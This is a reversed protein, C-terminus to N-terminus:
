WFRVRGTDLHVFNSQPYYGVGGAQLTLAAERLKSLKVGPLRIDIARGQMHLSRKAVGSSQGRLMANTSPSRYGSIVQYPREVGVQRQLLYLQDLLAPDMDWVEGSRHDRLLHNLDALASGAYDGDRWYVVETSEGTHLNHLALERRTPTGIRALAAPSGLLAGLGAINKIFGRRNLHKTM